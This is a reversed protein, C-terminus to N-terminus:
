LSEMSMLRKETFHDWIQLPMNYSNILMWKMPRQSVPNTVYFPSHTPTSLRLVANLGSNFSIESAGGMRQPGMKSVQFPLETGLTIKSCYFTSIGM